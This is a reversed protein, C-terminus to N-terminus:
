KKFQEWNSKKMRMQPTIGIESMKQEIFKVEQSAEEASKFPYDKLAEIEIRRAIERMDKNYAIYYVIDVKEYWYIVCYKFIRFNEEFGLLKSFTKIMWEKVKVSLPIDLEFRNNNNKEETKLKVTLEPTSGGRFRIFEFPLGSGSYYIDWSSVEVNKTPNLSQAFAQFKELKIDEADYKTELETLGINFETSTTDKGM